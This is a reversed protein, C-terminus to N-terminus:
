FEYNVGIGAIYLTSKYNGNFNYAINGTELRAKYDRVMLSFDFTIGAKALYTVGASYIFQDADPHAPSLYNDPVHSKTLGIGARFVTKETYSYNGGLSFSFADEYKYQETFNLNDNDTFEYASEDLVSWFTNSVNLSLQLKDAIDYAIGADLSAPAHLETKFTSSSPIGELIAGGTSINSFTADGSNMKLKIASHYTIGASLKSFQFHMAATYGIGIGASKYEAVGNPSSNSSIDLAIRRKMASWGFVPGGGIAIKDNLSYSIVPQIFLSRFRNDITVFRGSWNEDWITNESIPTFIGIGFSTKANLQTVGYINFPLSIAPDMDVNGDFPNLYSIRPFIVNVGATLQNNALRVCAAPNFFVVSADRAIAAAYGGMGTAKVGQNNIRFGEGYVSVSALM